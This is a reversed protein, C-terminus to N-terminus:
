PRRQGELRPAPADNPEDEILPTWSRREIDRLPQPAEPESYLLRAEAPPGRREGLALVIVHRLVRGQRLTLVDGVRLAHGPKLVPAGGVIVGGEVCLKAALSRTKAFRAFWLWKDLRLSTM